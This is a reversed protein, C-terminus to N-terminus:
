CREEWAKKEESIIELAEELNGDAAAAYVSLREVGGDEETGFGLSKLLEVCKQVSDESDDRSGEADELDIMPEDIPNETGTELPANRENTSTPIYTPHPINVADLMLDTERETANENREDSTSGGRTRQPQEM